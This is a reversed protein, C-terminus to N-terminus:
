GRHPQQDVHELAVGAEDRAGAPPDARPELVQRAPRELPLDIVDIGLEVGPRAGEGDAQAEVVPLPQQPGVHEAGRRQLRLRRALRHRDGALRHDACPARLPHDQLGAFPPEERAQHRRARAAIEARAAPGLDDLAERRALLHHGRRLEEDVAFARQAGAERPQRRGLGFRRVPGAHEGLHVRRPTRDGDAVALDLRQAPRRQLRPERRAGVYRQVAQLGAGLHLEGDDPARVPQQRQRGEARVVAYGRRAGSDEVRHRGVSPQGHLM